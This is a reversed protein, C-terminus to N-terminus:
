IRGQRITMRDHKLMPAITSASATTMSREHMRKSVILNRLFKRVDKQLIIYIIADTMIGIIILCLATGYLTRCKCTLHYENFISMMISGSFNLIIYTIGILCPIRFKATTRRKAVVRRSQPLREDSKIVKTYLYIYTLIAVVVILGDLVLFSHIITSMIINFQHKQKVLVAFVTAFVASTFWLFVYIAIMRRKTFYYSYRIHFYIDFFRDLILHLMAFKYAYITSLAIFNLLFDNRGLLIKGAIIAEFLSCIMEAFALNMTIVKQNAMPMKVKYLVALGFLHFLFSLSFGILAIFNINQKYKDM